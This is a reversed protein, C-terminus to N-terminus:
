FATAPPWPRCANRSANWSIAPRRGSTQRAVAQVLTLLNKCRHDVERVLLRIKEEQLERGTVDTVLALM